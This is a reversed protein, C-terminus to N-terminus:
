RYLSEIEKKVRNLLSIGWNLKRDALGWGERKFRNELSIWIGLRTYKKVAVFYFTTRLCWPKQYKKGRRDTLAKVLIIFLYSPSLASGQHLQLDVNLHILRVCKEPVKRKLMCWTEDSPIRRVYAKTLDILTLIVYKQGERNKRNFIADTTSRGPKFGFQSEHIETCGRMGRDLVKEWKKVPTQHYAAIRKFTVLARILRYRM